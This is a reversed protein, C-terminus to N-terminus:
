NLSRRVPREAEISAGAEWEKHERKWGVGLTIKNFILRM